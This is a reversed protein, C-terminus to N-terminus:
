GILPQPPATSFPLSHEARTDAVIQAPPVHADTGASVIAPAFTLAPPVLAFASVCTGDGVCTCHHSKSDHGGQTHHTHHGAMALKAFAPEHFPCPDAFAPHVTVFAFCIAFAAAFSRVTFRRVM